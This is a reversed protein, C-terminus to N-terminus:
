IEIIKDKVIRSLRPLNLEKAILIKHKGTKNRLYRLFEINKNNYLCQVIILYPSLDRVKSGRGVRTELIIIDNLDKLSIEVSTILSIINQALRRKDKPM